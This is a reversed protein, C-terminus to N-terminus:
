LRAVLLYIYADTVDQDPIRASQANAATAAYM